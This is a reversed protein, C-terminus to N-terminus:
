LKYHRAMAIALDKFEKGNDSQRGNSPPAMSYMVGEQLVLLQRQYALYVAEEGVGEVKHYMTPNKEPNYQFFPNSTNVKWAEVQGQIVNYEKKGYRVKIVCGTSGKMKETEVQQGHPHYSMILEKPINTCLSTNIETIKEASVSEAQAVQEEEGRADEKEQPGGMCCCLLLLMLAYSTSQIIDKM